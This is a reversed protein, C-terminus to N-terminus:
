SSACGCRRARKEAVDEYSFDTLQNNLIFGDAMLRSGFANEVSSTMAVANGNPDLIHLSSNRLGLDLGVYYM